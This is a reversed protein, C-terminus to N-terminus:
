HLGVVAEFPVVSEPERRGGVVVEHRLVLRVLFHRLQAPLLELLTTVEELQRGTVANLIPPM